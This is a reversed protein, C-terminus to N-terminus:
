QEPRRRGYFWVGVAVLGVVFGVVWMMARAGSEASGFDTAAVSTPNHEIVTVNTTATLMNISNSATVVATYVGLDPYIHGVTQGSGGTGDGFDWLYDVNGGSTPIAVLTTQSGLGTPSNNTATLGRIPADITVVCNAFESSNGAPDTATASVFENTGAEFPVSVDFNVGGGSDTPVLVTGLPRQGEGNGSADCTTNAFFELTFVTVPTSDLTGTILTNGLDATAALLEPYNQLENPGSDGDGIDNITLGDNGLDVGLLGNSFVANSRIENGTATLSEVVIGNTGAFAIINGDGVATGGVLNGSAGSGIFVNAGGNGRNNTGSIDTGIFNGEVVNGTAGSGVIRIGDGNFRNIVLGRIVSNLGSITLGSALPGANTGDLEILLIASNGPQGATANPLAGPQSFGDILVPKTIKPLPSLPQITHPGSGPIDFGILDAGFSVNAAQIAERLSCHSENCIGSNVDNDSNVVFYIGREVAGIDCDTIGDENGDLPRPLGRQDISECAADDGNDIALSGPLPNHTLTPGGNDQLPSLLPDGSFAAGCRGDEVLNNINTAITGSSLCDEGSLSNAVVTNSFDLTQNNYIGGGRNAGNGSITSNSLTLTLSGTNHIGGGRNQATNGSITSNTVRAGGDSQIKIAGGNVATNGNFTSEDIVVTRMGQQIAGGSSGSSNNSFTSKEVSLLGVSSIAGGGTGSVNGSFLSNSIKVNTIAGIVIAGGGSTTSNNSFVTSDINANAVVDLAGAINAGFLSDTVNVRGDADLAVGVLNNKFASNMITLTGPALHHVASGSYSSNGIFASDTISVYGGANYLGGGSGLPTEVSNNTFTTRLITLGGYRENFIGAGLGFNTTVKNNTFTTDEVTLSGENYVAGYKSNSNNIASNQILLTESNYIAGGKNYPESGKTITLHILTVDTGSGLEGSVGGGQNPALYGPTPTPMPPPYHYPDPGVVLVRSADNGSIKLNVATSGDITLDDVIPPLQTGALVITSNPALSFTITDAGESNNAGDIAERLTCNVGDCVGDDTDAASNVVFVGAPAAQSPRYLLFVALLLGIVFLPMLLQGLLTQYRRATHIEGM